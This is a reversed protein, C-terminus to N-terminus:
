VYSLFISMLLSSGHADFIVVSSVCNKSCVLMTKVTAAALWLGQISNLPYVFPRPHVKQLVDVIVLVICSIYKGANV